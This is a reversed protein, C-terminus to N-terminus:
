AESWEEGDHHPETAPLAAEEHTADPLIVNPQYNEIYGLLLRAAVWPLFIQILHSIMVNDPRGREAMYQGFPECWSMSGAYITGMLHLTWVRYTAVRYIKRTRKAVKEGVVYAAITLLPSVFLLLAVNVILLSGQSFELSATILLAMLLVGGLCGVCCGGM